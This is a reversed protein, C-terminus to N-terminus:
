KKLIEMQITVLAILTCSITFLLCSQGIEPYGFLSICLASASMAFPILEYQKPNM